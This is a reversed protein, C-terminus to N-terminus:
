WPQDLKTPGFGQGIKEDVRGPELSPDRISGDPWDPKLVNIEISLL